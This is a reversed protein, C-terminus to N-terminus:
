NNLQKELDSTRERSELLERNAVRLKLHLFLLEGEVIRYESYNAKELVRRNILDTLKRNVTASISNNEPWMSRLRPHYDRLDRPKFLM